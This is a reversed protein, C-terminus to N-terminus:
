GSSDCSYSLGFVANYNHHAPHIKVRWVTGHYGDRRLVEGDEIFPLLTKAHLDYFPVVNSSLEFFPSLMYSQYYLFYDFEKDDWNTAGPWTTTPNQLSYFEHLGTTLNYRRDLPLDKDSLGADVFEIASQVERMLTLIAFVSRSSSTLTKDHDDKYIIPGCIKRAYNRLEDPSLKNHFVHSLEEYVSSENVLQFLKDFPLWVNNGSEQIGGYPHLSSRILSNLSLKSGSHAGIGAFLEETDYERFKLTSTHRQEAATYGRDVTTYISVEDDSADQNNWKQFSGSIASDPTLDQRKKNDRFLERSEPSNSSESKDDQERATSRGRHYRPPTPIDLTSLSETWASPGSLRRRSSGSDLSISAQTCYTL